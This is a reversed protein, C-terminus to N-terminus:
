VPGQVAGQREEDESGRGGFHKDYAEKFDEAKIFNSINVQRNDVNIQFDKPFIGMLQARRIIEKDEERLGNLAEMQTKADMAKDGVIAWYKRLRMKSHMSLESIIELATKTKAAEQIEARKTTLLRRVSRDTIQLAEAIERQKMGMLTLELAKEKRQEMIAKTSM